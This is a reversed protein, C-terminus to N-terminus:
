ETRLDSFVYNKNLYYFVLTYSAMAPIQSIEAPWKLLHLFLVLVLQNVLFSVSFAAIFRPLAKSNQVTSKFVFMRNLSFAVVLALAYGVANAAEPYIRSYRVLLFFVGYGVLTNVLGVALYKIFQM